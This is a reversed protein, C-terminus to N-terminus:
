RETKLLFVIMTTAFGTLGYIALLLGCMSITPPYLLNAVGGEIVTIGHGILAFTLLVKRLKPRGVAKRIILLALMTGVSTMAVGISVLILIQRPKEPSTEFLGSAFLLTGMVLLALIFPVAAYFKTSRSM